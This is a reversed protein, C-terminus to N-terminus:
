LWGVFRRRLGEDPDGIEYGISDVSRGFTASCLIEYRKSGVYWHGYLYWVEDGLISTMKPMWNTPVQGQSVFYARTTEKCASVLGDVSWIRRNASHALAAAAALVVVGVIILKHTPISRISRAAVRFFREDARRLAQARGHASAAAWAPDPKDVDV